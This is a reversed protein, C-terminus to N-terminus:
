ESKNDTVKASDAAQKAALDVKLIGGQAGKKIEVGPYGDLLFKLTPYIAPGTSDFEVALEEALKTAPVKEGPKLAEIRASAKEFLSRIKTLSSEIHQANNM